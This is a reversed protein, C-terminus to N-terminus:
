ENSPTHLSSITFFALKSSFIFTLRVQICNSCNCTLSSNDLATRSATVRDDLDRKTARAAMSSATFYEREPGAYFGFQAEEFALADKLREAALQQEFILRDLQRISAEREVVLCQRAALIEAFAASPDPKVRRSAITSTM